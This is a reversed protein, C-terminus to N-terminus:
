HPDIPDATRYDTSPAAEEPQQTKSNRILLGIPLLFVIGLVRNGFFLSLGAM